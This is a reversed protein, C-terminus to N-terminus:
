MGNASTGWYNATTNFAGPGGVFYQDDTTTDTTEYPWDPARPPEQNHYQRPEMSFPTSHQVFAGLDPQMVSPPPAQEPQSPMNHPGFSYAPNQSPAQLGNQAHSAHHMPHPLVHQQIHPAMMQHHHMDQSSRHRHAAQERMMSLHMPNAGVGMSSFPALASQQGDDFAGMESEEVPARFNQSLILEPRPACSELGPSKSPLCLRGDIVDQVNYYSVMHHSVGGFTISITKKILGNTKFAYSDVLSGILAREAAQRANLSELDLSGMLGHQSDPKPLPPPLKKNKKLARKKEGPPFPKDLERYILFNGLIRSPSWSVGDTWRKIGSSHEEYIFINGSKILEQRERDHPRRAVHDLTGSLCAEFLVLADMTTAIYGTFTPELARSQSSM